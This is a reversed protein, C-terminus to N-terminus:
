VIMEISEKLTFSKPYSTSSLKEESRQRILGMTPQLSMTYQGNEIEMELSCNRPM